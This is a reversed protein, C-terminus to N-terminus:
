RRRWGEVANRMAGHVAASVVYLIQMAATQEKPQFCEERLNGTADRVIVWIPSNAWGPGSASEGWATVIKDSPSIKPMM